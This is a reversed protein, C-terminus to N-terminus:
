RFNKTYINVVLELVVDGERSFSGDIFFCGWIEGKERFVFVLRGWGGGEGSRGM